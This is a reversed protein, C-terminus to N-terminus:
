GIARAASLETARQVDGAPPQHASATRWRRLFFRTALATASLGLLLVAAVARLRSGKQYYVPIAAPTIQVTIRDIVPVRYEDQLMKLDASIERTLQQMRNGVEAATTGVAQVDLAPTRYINAFQGGSNPLRVASGHTVGEDALTVVESDVRAADASRDVM